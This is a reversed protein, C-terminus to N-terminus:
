VLNTAKNGNKDTRGNVVTLTHVCLLPVVAFLTSCPMVTFHQIFANTKFLILLLGREKKAIESLIM